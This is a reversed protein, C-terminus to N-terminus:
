IPSDDKNEKSNHEILELILKEHEVIKNALILQGENLLRSVDKLVKYSDSRTSYEYSHALIFLVNIFILIDHDCM